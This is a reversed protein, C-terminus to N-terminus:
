RNLRVRCYASPGTIVIQTKTCSTYTDSAFDSGDPQDSAQVEVSRPIYGLNHIFTKNSPTAIWGNEDGGAEVTTWDDKEVSDKISKLLRDFVSASFEHKPFNFQM